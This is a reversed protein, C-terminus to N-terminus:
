IFETSSLRVRANNGKGVFFPRSMSIVRSQRHLYIQLGSDHCLTVWGDPLVEFKSKGKEVVLRKTKVKTPEISQAKKDNPNVVDEELMKYLEEDDEEEMDQEDGIVPEEGEQRSTGNISMPCKLASEVGSADELEGVEEQTTVEDQQVQIENTVEEGEEKEDQQQMQIVNAAEEGGEEKEDQPLPPPPAATPPAAPPPPPPPQSEPVSQSQQTPSESRPPQVAASSHAACPHIAPPLVAASAAAVVMDVDEDEENLQQTEEEAAFILEPSDDAVLDLVDSQDMAGSIINAVCDRRQWHESLGFALHIVEPSTSPPFVLPPPLRGVTSFSDSADMILLLELM